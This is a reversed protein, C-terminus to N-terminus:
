PMPPERNYRRARLFETDELRKVRNQLDDHRSEYEQRPLIRENVITELALLRRSVDKKFERMGGWQLLFLAIWSCITLFIAGYVETNTVEHVQLAVM